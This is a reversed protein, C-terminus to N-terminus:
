GSGFAAEAPGRELFELWRRIQGDALEFVFYERLEAPVGSATGEGHAVVEVLARDGRVEVDLLELKVEGLLALREGMRAICAARGRHVGADPFVPPEEWVLDEHWAERAYDLGGANWRELRERLERAAAREAEDM